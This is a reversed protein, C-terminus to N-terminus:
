AVKVLSLDFIYVMTLINDEVGVPTLGDWNLTSYNKYSGMFFQLNRSGNTSNGVFDMDYGFAQPSTTLEATRYFNPQAVGGDGEMAVIIPRALVSYAKFNLRYQGQFFQIKDYKVQNEWPNGDEGIKLLDVALTPILTAVPSAANEYKFSVDDLYVTGTKNAYLTALNTPLSQDQGTFFQLVAGNSHGTTTFDIEFTKWGTELVVPVEDIARGTSVINGGSLGVRITRAEAARARFSLTFSGIPLRINEQIIQGHWFNTDMTSATTTFVGVGDTIGMTAQIGDSAAGIYTKWGVSNTFNETSDSFDGNVVNGLLSEPLLHPMVGSTVTQGGNAEDSFKSWGAPMGALGTTTFQTNNLLQNEDTVIINRTHTGVLGESDTVDYRFTYIGPVPATLNLKTGTTIDTAVVNTITLNRDYDDRVVLGSKVLLLSGAKVLLDGGSITPAQNPLPAGTEIKVDDIHVEAFSRAFGVLDSPLFSDPGLGFQLEANLADSPATFNITKTEWSTGVQVPLENLASPKASLGGQHLQVRITRAATARVKFTLVYSGLANLYIGNQRLQAHWWQTAGTISEINMSGYQNDGETKYSATAVIGDVAGGIFANWGVSEFEFGDTEDEFDGNIVGWTENSVPSSSSPESSSSPISSSPIVSSPPTISSSPAISSSSPVSSTEGCAVLFLATITSLTLIQKRNM